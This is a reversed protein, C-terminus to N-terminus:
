RVLRISALTVPGSHKSAEKERASTSLAYGGDRGPMWIEALFYENGYRHFTLRPEGSKNSDRGKSMLLISNGTQVDQIQAIGMGSLEVSYKGAPLTKSSAHFAFPVTATERAANQALIVSSGFLASIVTVVAFTRVHNKM